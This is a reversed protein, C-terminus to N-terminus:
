RLESPPPICKSRCWSCSRSPLQKDVIAWLDEGPRMAKLKPILDPDVPLDSFATLSGAVLVWDDSQRLAKEAERALFAFAPSDTLQKAFDNPRLCLGYLMGLREVYVREQPEMAIARKLLEIALAPEHLAFFMSANHLVRASNQAAGTQKLWAERLQGYNDGEMQARQKALGHNPDAAFGDWEPHNEIMWLLHELRTETVRHVWDPPYYAIIQGRACLDDPHMLVTHEYEQLQRESPMPGCIWLAAPGLCYNVERYGVRIRQPTVPRKLPPPPPPAAPPIDTQAWIAMTMVSSLTLLRTSM